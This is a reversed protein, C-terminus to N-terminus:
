RGEAGDSTVFWLDHTASGKPNTQAVNGALDKGVLAYHYTSKPRLGSLTVANVYGQKCLAPNVSADCSSSCWSISGCNTSAGVAESGYNNTTGYIVKAEALKEYTVWTITATNGRVITPTVGVYPDPASAMGSDPTAPIPTWKGAVTFSTKTSSAVKWTGNFQATGPKTLGSITVAQSPSVCINGNCFKDETLFTASSATASVSLIAADFNRPRPTPPVTDAYLQEKPQRSPLTGPVYNATTRWGLYDFTWKFEQGFDKGTFYIKATSNMGAAFCKDGEEQYIKEGSKAWYWAFAGCILQNLEPVQDNQNWPVEVGNYRFSMTNPNWLRSWLFDLTSKTVLPIRADPLLGLEKQYEYYEILAELGLGTMFSRWIVGQPYSQPHAATAYGGDRPSYNINEDMYELLVDVMRRIHVRDAPDLRGGQVQWKSLSADLNYALPRHGSYADLNFYQWMTNGAKGGGPLHHSGLNIAAQKAIPDGTRLYYMASSNPFINWDRLLGGPWNPGGNAVGAFFNRYADGCVLSCHQYYERANAYPAGGPKKSAGAPTPWGKLGAYDALEMFVRPVDYNYCNANASGAGYSTNDFDGQRLLYDQGLRTMFNSELGWGTGSCARPGWYQITAEWTKSSGYPCPDSSYGCPVRPCNNQKLCSPPSEVFTAAPLVTFIYSITIPEGVRSGAGNRGAVPQITAEVKYQGPPTVSNGCNSRDGGHHTCNTRIRVYAGDMSGLSGAACWDNSQGLNYFTYENEVTGSSVNYQQSCGLLADVAFLADDKGKKTGDSMRTFTVNSMTSSGSIPGGLTVQQLGIYLEHGAYVSQGGYTWVTWRPPGNVDALPAAAYYMSTEGPCGGQLCVPGNRTSWQGTIKDQSAPYFYFGAGPARFNVRVLHNKAYGPGCGDNGSSDGPVQRMVAKNADLAVLVLSSSCRNTIWKVDVFAGGGGQTTDIGGVQVTAKGGTTTNPTDVFAASHVTFSAPTVAIVVYNVGNFQGPTVGSINLRMGAAFNNNAVFVADGGRSQVSTISATPSSNPCPNLWVNSASNGCQVSHPKDAGYDAFSPLAYLLLVCLLRSWLNSM